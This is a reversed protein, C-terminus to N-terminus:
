YINQMDKNPPYGTRTFFILTGNAGPFWCVVLWPHLVDIWSSSVSLSSSHFILQLFSPASRVVKCIHRRLCDQFGRLIWLISQIIRIDEWKMYHMSFPVLIPMLLLVFVFEVLCTNAYWLPLLFSTLWFLMCSFSSWTVLNWLTM